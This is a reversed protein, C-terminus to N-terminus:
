ASRLQKITEVGFDTWSAQTYSMTCAYGYESAKSVIARQELTPSEGWKGFICLAQSLLEFEQLTFHPANFKM